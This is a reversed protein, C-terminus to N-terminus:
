SKSISSVVDKMYNQLWSFFLIYVFGIVALSIKLLNLQSILIFEILAIIYPIIFHHLKVIGIKISEKIQKMRNEKAYLPYLIFSFHLFLLILMFAPLIFYEGKVGFLIVVALLIWPIFWVINLLIFKEFYRFTFKKKMLINYIMGQCFSWVIILLITLLFAAIVAFLVFGRLTSITSQLQAESQSVINSLDVKDLKDIWPASIIRALKMLAAAVSVFVINLLMVLWLNKSKFSDKYMIIQKKIRKM